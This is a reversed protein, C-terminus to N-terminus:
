FFKLGSLSRKGGIKETWVAKATRHIKLEDIDIDLITNVKLVRGNAEMKIGFASYDKLRAKIKAGRLTIEFEVEKKIRTRDRRDMLYFGCHPCYQFEEDKLEFFVKQCKPCVRIM